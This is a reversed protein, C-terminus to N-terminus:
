KWPSLSLQECITKATGVYRTNCLYAGGKAVNWGDHDRYLSFPTGLLVLGDTRKEWKQKTLM